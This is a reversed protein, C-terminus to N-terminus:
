GRLEFREVYRERIIPESDVAEARAALFLGADRDEELYAFAGQHYSHRSIRNRIGLIDLESERVKLWGHAPDHIFEYVDTM